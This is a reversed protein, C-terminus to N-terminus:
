KQRLYEFGFRCRLCDKKDCYEKQLQLLAQSDAATSVPLGAGSWHRIIHNDEAKLSELFRTARECLAEDAKHLGYAYLFPIVTNIVILNQANKGVQKEQSPSTKKFNFHEEWYPSTSVTLLKRVAELTEAEMIRSFLSRERYYLNALQALRVHPFNGPRLRLFRWQTAPMPASLEFKHQLYRFEKQLKRYYEDEDPLEEDLLGAQGFFFAEVQFLNDRHKDIARFPLHNAWAEFADGNLGFGFNRSLTIFFVDEWHNNCHELRAAIARAKQEFREVQLASLWSHVTLKPLSSLISYCPPYIEAHSLETYHRRISEPCSLQLQPVSAGNARFVECDVTEAVHLIVNDYAVDKDHGHRMWDSAVTHVEVNGVWLTGDIKLKANFFDPGANTNPLGADIVEVPKGTTTRLMKLPFIKHKWVYHLLLEM